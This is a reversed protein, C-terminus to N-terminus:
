RMFPRYRYISPIKNRGTTQHSARARSHRFSLVRPPFTPHTKDPLPGFVQFRPLSISAVFRVFRSPFLLLQSPLLSTPAFLIRPLPPHATLTHTPNHADLALPHTFHTTTPNRTQPHLHSLHLLAACRSGLPNPVTRIRSYRLYPLHSLGRGPLYHTFSHDICAPPCAPIARGLRPIATLISVKRAM